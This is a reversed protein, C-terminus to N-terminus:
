TRNYMAISCALLFPLDVNPCVDWVETDSSCEAGSIGEPGGTSVTSGVDSVGHGGCVLVIRECCWECIIKLWVFLIWSQTPAIDAGDGLWGCVATMTHRESGAGVLCSAAGGV